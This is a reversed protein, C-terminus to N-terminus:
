SEGCMSQVRPMCAVWGVREVKACYFLGGVGRVCVCVCVVCVDCLRTM